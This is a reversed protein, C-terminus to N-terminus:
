MRRQYDHVSKIPKETWQYDREIRVYRFNDKLGIQANVDEFEQLSFYGWEPYTGSVWGYFRGTRKDFETAYWDWSGTFYHAIGIPDDSEEQSGIQTFRRRLAQRLLMQTM